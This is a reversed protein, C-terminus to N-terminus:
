DRITEPLVYTLPNVPRGNVHVEYHLHPATALGSKGVLAIKDGRSVRQGPKVLIKSTHGYKTVVGYGHSIVVKNGFGSEWGTSKVIGDAPALIPTGKPATIDVGRHPRAYKLIPHMRSSKFGSTMWGVTPLISPTAQLQRTHSEISDVAEDFSGALLNARRILGNLDVEVEAARMGLDGAESLVDDSGPDVPGGIGAQMVQPDIPDLNAMVRFRSDRDSIANITDELVLLRSHLQGLETALVANERELREARAMDVRRSVTLLSFGLGVVLLLGAVSAAVKLVRTSLRLQRAAGSGEPVVVITWQRDAM